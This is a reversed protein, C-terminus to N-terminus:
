IVSVPAAALLAARWIAPKHFMCALHPRNLLGALEFAVVLALGFTRIPLRQCAIENGDDRRQRIVLRQGLPVVVVRQGAVPLIVTITVDLGVQHQNISFRVLSHQLENTEARM